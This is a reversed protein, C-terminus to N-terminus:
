FVCDYRLPVVRCSLIQKLSCLCSIKLTFIDSTEKIEMMAVFNATGLASFDKYRGCINGGCGELAVRPVIASVTQKVVPSHTKNQNIVM